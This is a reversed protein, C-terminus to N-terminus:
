RCDKCYGYVEVKHGIVEIEDDKFSPKFDKMPCNTMTVIKHCEVWVAYHRHGTAKLDYLTLENNLLSTKIVLGKEEFADLVRYVTSLWITHGRGEIEEFIEMASLPRNSDKLVSLVCERAKTRKLGEPWKINLGDRLIRM